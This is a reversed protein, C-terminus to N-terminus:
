DNGDFDGRDRDDDDDSDRDRGRNRNRRGNDDDDDGFIERLLTRSNLGGSQSPALSAITPAQIPPLTPLPSTVRPSLDRDFDDQDRERGKGRGIADDNDLIDKVVNRNNGGRLSRDKDLDDLDRDKGKGRQKGTITDDDDFRDKVLNRSNAGGSQGAVTSTVSRDKKGRNKNREDDDKDDDDLAGKFRDRNTLGGTPKPAQLPPLPPLPTTVTPSTPAPAAPGSPTPQAAPAPGRTAGPQGPLLTQLGLSTAVITGKVDSGTTPGARDIAPNPTSMLREVELAHTVHVSALRQILPGPTGQRRDTDALGVGKSSQQPLDGVQEVIGGSIRALTGAELMQSDGPSPTLSEVGSQGEVVRVTEWQAPGAPTETKAFVSAVRSFFSAPPPLVDVELIGGRTFVRSSPTQVTVIDTPQSSNYALAVRVSGGELSVVTQGPISEQIMIKSQPRVLIMAHRDWLIELTDDQGTRLEQAVAVTNGLSVDQKTGGVMGLLPTGTFGTILGSAMPEAIGPTGDRVSAELPAIGFLLVFATLVVIRLITSM